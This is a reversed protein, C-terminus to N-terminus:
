YRNNANSQNLWSIIVPEIYSLSYCQWYCLSCYFTLDFLYKIFYNHNNFIKTFIFFFKLTKKKKVWFYVWHDISIFLTVNKEKKRAKEKGILSSLVIDKLKYENSLKVCNALLFFWVKTTTLKAATWISRSRHM